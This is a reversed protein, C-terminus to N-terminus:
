PHTRVSEVAALWGKVAAERQADNWQPTFVRDEQWLDALQQKDRWFGVALGALFAAGLATTEIIKGRVVPINLVDAQHQLLFNNACAGGDVRMRPIKEGTDNEMTRVVDASQYSISELAARVLHARSTGRTIGSIAGRARMDWHPAGLGVFAPVIYVGGTDSVERAVDESQAATTLLKLEDRLWQVVAGAVFISGELAYDVQGDLGWAVSTILGHKSEVAESGTNMVLFCGTGYTNKCETRSFAAQGFLAGQQDGVLSAVPISCGFISTEGYVHSTPFVEPLLAPPVGLCELMVDDWKLDHINFLMTRCANSYDTAFVDCLNHLLWADITGCCLEGREARERAGPVKDLLWKMKTGSFYADIVLGTRRRVEHELNEGRLQECLDTTRRCQWVIANHLPEKTKRDWLVTTERQNTIGIAAIEDASANAAHLVERATELQTDLIAKPDHEVWGPQPYIQPFERQACAVIQGQADFLISRSSTTGQDFALIYRKGM